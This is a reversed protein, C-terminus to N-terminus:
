KMPLEQDISFLRMLWTHFAKGLLTEADLDRTGIAQGMPRPKKLTALWAHVQARTEKKPKFKREDEPIQNIYSCARPWTPDEAPILKHVFDELEGPSYNDPMLWIGLRPMGDVITGSREPQQPLLPRLNAPLRNIIQKWRRNPDDNGDVIIGLAKRRDVKSEPQISDILRNLGGKAKIEFPPCEGEHYHKWVHRVVHKDDSGEVLLLTNTKTRLAM